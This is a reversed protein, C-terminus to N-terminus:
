ARPQTARSRHPLPLPEAACAQAAAARRSMRPVRDDVTRRNRELGTEMPRCRGERHQSRGRRRAAGPGAAEATPSRSWVSCCRRFRACRCASTRGGTGCHTGQCRRRSHMTRSGARDHRRRARRITDLGAAGDDLDGTLIVGIAAPGYVQAASRFLPDIAPRSLNEAPGRSLRLQGPEVICTGISRRSTSAGTRWGIGLSPMLARCRVRAGGLIEAILGASQPHRHIVVCVPAALDAPLGAALGAPSRRRRVISRRRRHAQVSM